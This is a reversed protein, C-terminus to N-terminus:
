FPTNEVVQYGLTGAAKILDEDKLTCSKLHGSFHGSEMLLNQVYPYFLSQFHDGGSEPRGRWNCMTPAFARATNAADFQATRGAPELRHNVFARGTGCEGNDKRMRMGDTAAGHV